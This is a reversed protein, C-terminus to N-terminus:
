LKSDHFYDEFVYKSPMVRFRVSHILAVQQVGFKTVRPSINPLERTTPSEIKIARQCRTMVRVTLQGVSNMKEDWSSNVLIVSFDKLIQPFQEASEIHSEVRQGTDM